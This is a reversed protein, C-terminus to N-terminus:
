VAWLRAATNWFIDEVQADGLGVAFCAWKLSRLHELGVLIPEVRTHKEGWVPMHDYLWLFSDGVTVSRGRMHSVHFDSGYMLREHGLIRLIAVHAAVECNASTDFWLNDLGRLEPLGEFNHAACFGRASHALILKMDPYTKCYRRITAINAAEAVARSKVMHLTIALGLQNAVDVQAEPLYDEIAAEWTPDTKALTHYCKLGHLKLRKVDSEIQAPDDDPTVFLAGRSRGTPDAAVQESQWQNAAVVLERQGQPLPLFNSAVDRGPHLMDITRRYEEFGMPQGFKSCQWHSEDHETPWLHCHADFVRDPVFSALERQFLEREHDHLALTM